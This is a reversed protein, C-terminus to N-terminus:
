RTWMLGRAALHLTADVNATARSHWAFRAQWSCSCRALYADRGSIATLTDVRTQHM